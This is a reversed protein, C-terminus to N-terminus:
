WTKKGLGHGITVSTKYIQEDVKAKWFQEWSTISDNAVQKVWYMLRGYIYDLIKKSIPALKSHMTEIKNNRSTKIMNNWCSCSVTWLLTKTLWIWMDMYSTFLTAKNLAIALNFLLTPSTVNVDTKSWLSLDPKSLSGQYVLGRSCTKVYHYILGWSSTKAYPYILVQGPIPNLTKHGNSIWPKPLKWNFFQNKQSGNPWYIVPLKLIQKM